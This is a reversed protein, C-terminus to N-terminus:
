ARSCTITLAAPQPHLYFPHLVSGVNVQTMQIIHNIVSSEPMSFSRQGLEEKRQEWDSILRDCDRPSGDGVFSEEIIEFSHRILRARRGALARIM